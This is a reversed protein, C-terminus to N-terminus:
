CKVLLVCAEAFAERLHHGRLLSLATRFSLSGPRSGLTRPTRLGSPEVGAPSCRQAEESSIGISAWMMPSGHRVRSAAADVMDDCAICHASRPGSCPRFRLYAP